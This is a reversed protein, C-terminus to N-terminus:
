PRGEPRPQPAAFRRGPRALLGGVVLGGALGAALVWAPPLWGGREPNMLVYGTAQKELAELAIIHEMGNGGDVFQVRAIGESDTLFGYVTIFHGTGGRDLVDVHAIFPTPIRSFDAPRVHRVEARHGFERAAAALEALSTGRDADTPVAAAVRDYGIDPHKGKRGQIALYVYLCNTGCRGPRAWQPMGAAPDAPPTAAVVLWLVPMM